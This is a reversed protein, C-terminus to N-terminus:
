AGFTRQWWGRRPTGAEGPDADIERGDPTAQTDNAAEVQAPEIMSPDAIVTDEAELPIAALEPAEVADAKKARSRRKPKPTPEESVPVDMMAPSEVAVDEASAEAQPEVTDAKKRRSRKPKAPADEEAAPEAPTEVVPAPEADRARPSRRGKKPAEEVTAEAEVAADESM